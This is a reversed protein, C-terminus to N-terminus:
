MTELSDCVFYPNHKKEDSLSTVEDHGPYVTYNGSLNKLREISKKMELVDGTPFDTRGVSCAFLMDGTFMSDDCIYCCSGCTHGPTHFVKIKSEGLVIREGDRLVRDAEFSIAGGFMGSLNISPNKLGAADLEHILIKAGTLKKVEEASAMHDFHCHTLLVYTVRQDKLVDSISINQFDPDVVASEGSAVDTFLYTNEGVMGCSSFVKVEIM